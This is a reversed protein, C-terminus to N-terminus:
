IEAIQSESRGHLELCRKWGFSQMEACKRIWAMAFVLFVAAFVAAFFADACVGTAFRVVVDRTVFFLGTLDEALCGAAGGRVGAM